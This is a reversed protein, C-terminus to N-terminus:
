LRAHAMKSTIGRSPADAPNYESPVYVYKVVIDGMMSLAGIKSIVKQLTPSSSRGKCHSSCM